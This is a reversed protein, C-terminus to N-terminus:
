TIELFTSSEYEDPARTIYPQVKGNIELYEAVADRKPTAVAIVWSKGVRGYLQQQVVGLGQSKSVMAIVQPALLPIAHAVERRYNEDLAGFPSDMVLPFIGGEFNSLSDKSAKEREDYMERALKALAGVFTLALLQNEGQSKSVLIEEGAGIKKVLRLRFDPTLEPVYAKFAIQEYTQKIREDLEERTRDRRIQLIRAVADAIRDASALQRQLAQGKESGTKARILKSELEGLDKRSEALDQESRYIDIDVARIKDELAERQEAYDAVISVGSKKQQDKIGEIEQRKESLEQEVTAIADVIAVLRERVAMREAVYRKADAGIRIWTEQLDRRGAAPLLKCIHERAETGEDLPTGCICSRRSLLDNLFQQEYIAPLRGKERLEEVTENARVALENSFALFARDSLAMRTDRRSDTLKTILSSEIKELDDLRLQRERAAANDRLLAEVKEKADRLAIRNRKRQEYSEELDLIKLNRQEIALLIEGTVGEDFQKLVDRLLKKAAPLHEHVRELVELGLITKIAQDLDQSAENPNVLKEIREGDFFFFQHLGTPLIQAIVNAASDSRREPPGDARQIDVTRSAAGERLTGNKERFTTQWRVVYYTRDEHEFCVEVSCDASEGIALQARVRENILADRNEFAPTVEDFLAWTFANLLTTKGAGNAGYIITVNQPGPSSFDIRQEGQFQRFNKLKVYKLIM